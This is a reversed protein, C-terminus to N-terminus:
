KGAAAASAAGEDGGQAGAGGSGGATAGMQAGMQALSSADLGPVPVGPPESAGDRAEAEVAEAVHGLGKKRLEYALAAVEAAPIRYPSFRQTPFARSEVDQRYQQLASQIAAGVQSYQKCFKPTVKAHHPHSLMGLLDHYVLVQPVLM